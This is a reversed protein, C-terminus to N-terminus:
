FSRANERCESRLVIEDSGFAPAFVMCDGAHTDQLRCSRMSPSSVYRSARPRKSARIGRFSSLPKRFTRKAALLQMEDDSLGRADPFVALQNGELARNTFVDLQVFPFKRQPM